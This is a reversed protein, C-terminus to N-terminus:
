RRQEAIQIAHACMTCCTVGPVAVRRAQPIAEGCAECNFRSDTVTKGRTPDRLRQEQLADDLVDQEHKVADDIWDGVDRPEIEPLTM